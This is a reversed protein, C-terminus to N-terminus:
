HLKRLFSIESNGPQLTHVTIGSGEALGKLSDSLEDVEDENDIGAILIRGKNQMQMDKLVKTALLEVTALDESMGTSIAIAEVPRGTAVIKKYLMEVGEPTSLDFQFSVAEVGFDKLDEAEEVVSPNVATIIIDYGNEAFQQALKYSDRSSNSAIVALPRDNSVAQENIM